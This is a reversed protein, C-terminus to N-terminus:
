RNKPQLARKIMRLPKTLKWSLSSQIGEIEASLRAVEANLVERLAQEKALQGESRMYVRRLSSRATESVALAQETQAHAEREAELLGVTRMHAGREMDLQGATMAYSNRETELLSLSQMHSKREAELIEVAQVHAQREAELMEVAQVHGRREAELQGATQVHAGREAELQGTTQVHARHEAELQEVTQMHATHENGLRRGEEELASKLELMLKEAERWSNIGLLILTTEVLLNEGNEPLVLYMQPDENSFFISDGVTVGNLPRIEVPIGDVVAVTRQLICRRMEVPDFRVAICGKPIKITYHLRGESDRQPCANIRYEESFGAGFDLYFRSDVFFPSLDPLDDVDTVTETEEQALCCVYQYINYTPHDMLAQMLASKKEIPLYKGQESAFLPVRTCTEKALYYGASRIMEWLNKRAFFHIHTNDLLGLPTYTFQDCLLNAIIDGNAINPVSLLVCGDPKLFRKMKTLVAQPDRLHELVDAYVIYDFAHDPITGMWGDDELNACIGGDAYCIAHAYCDPDLEVIFVTCGLTEKLYRTMVGDAPGCELVAAGPHIQQLIKTHSTNGQQVAQEDITFQYNYKGDTM